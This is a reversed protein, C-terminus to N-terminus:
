KLCKLSIKSIHIELTYHVIILFTWRPFACLQQTALVPNVSQVEFSQVEFSGVEYSGDEFSGVEFSGVEFSGVEFAGVEFSGVEL